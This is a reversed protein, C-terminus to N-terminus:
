REVSVVFQYPSNATGAVVTNHGFILGATGAHNYRTLQVDNVITGSRTFLDMVVLHGDLSDICFHRQALPQLGAGVDPQPPLTLANSGVEAANANPGCGVTFPLSKVTAQGIGAQRQLSAYKMEVRLRRVQSRPVGEGYPQLEAVDKNAQDLRRCLTTVLPVAMTNANSMTKLFTQRDVKLLTVNTAARATISRKRKLVVGMEGFIAGAELKSLPVQDDQVRKLLQVTGQRLLYVGESPDGEQYIDKGEDVYILNNNGGKKAM